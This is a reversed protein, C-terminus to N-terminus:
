RSLVGLEAAAEFARDRVDLGVAEAGDAERGVPGVRVDMEGVFGARHEDFDRADEQLRHEVAADLVRLLVPDRGDVLLDHLVDVVLPLGLFALPLGFLLSSGKPSRKKQRRQLSLSTETYDSLTISCLSSSLGM